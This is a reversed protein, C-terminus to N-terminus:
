CSETEWTLVLETRKNKRQVAQSYSATFYRPSDDTIFGLRKLADILGKCGGRLNDDDLTGHRFSRLELHVHVGKPAKTPRRATQWAVVLHLELQKNFRSLKGWHMTKTVNLSHTVIPLTLEIRGKMPEGKMARSAGPHGKAGTIRVKMARKGSRRHLAVVVERGDPLTLTVGEGVKREVILTHQRESGESARTM